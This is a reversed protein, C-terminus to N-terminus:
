QPLLQTSWPVVLELPASATAGDAVAPQIRVRVAAPVANNNTVDYEWSDQWDTGDFFAVEMSQVDPLLPEEAPTGRVPALLDRDVTRVLRGTRQGAADPDLAVYYQVEQVDGVPSEGDDVATTTTFKLFGPFAGSPSTQSGVLTAALGVSTGATSVLGSVRANRLDNRLVTLAHARILATRTHAAANDRMRVAQSFVGYIATLILACGAMALILEILTFARAKM